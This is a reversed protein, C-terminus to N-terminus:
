RVVHNVAPRSSVNKAWCLELLDWIDNTIGLSESNKPRPPRKGELVVDFAVEPKQRNAFPPAGTLVEYIVMALAYIDSTFSPGCGNNDVSLLEPATWNISERTLTFPDFIISTLGYDSLLARPSPHNSILINSGRLNGHTVSARHLYELGKTVDILLRLRNVEPNKRTFRIINGNKLWPSVMGFRDSMYAGYFPLLNKHHLQKWLVIEKFFRKTIKARDDGASFRLLKVAVGEGKWNGKRLDAYTRTAYPIGDNIRLEEGVLCSNPLQQFAGCLRRLIGLATSKLHGPIKEHRLVQLDNFGKDCPCSVM